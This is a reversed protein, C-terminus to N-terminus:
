HLPPVPPPEGFIFPWLGLVGVAILYIAVLYNLLKPLFLILIGIALAIVPMLFAIDSIM